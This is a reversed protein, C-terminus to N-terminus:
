LVRGYGSVGSWIKRKQVPLGPKGSDYVYGNGAYIGVHYSGWFVLDGKQPSSVPTAKAKQAAVTRPLTYGLQGYVYQTYGSCDFGAPTNGGYKYMIGFYKRGETLVTEGTVGTSPPTASTLWESVYRQEAIKIWGNGTRYGTIKAGVRYTGLAAYNTGPGKRLKAPKTVYRTIKGDPTMEEAALPSTAPTVAAVSAGAAPAAPAATAPATALLPVAVAAALLSTSLRSRNRTM